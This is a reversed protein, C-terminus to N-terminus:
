GLDKKIAKIAELHEKLVIQLAALEVAQTAALDAEINELPFHRDLHLRISDRLGQMRLRVDRVQGQHDQLHGLLVIRESSM